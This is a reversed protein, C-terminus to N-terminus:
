RRRHQGCSEHRGHSGTRTRDQVKDQGLGGGPDEGRAQLQGHEKKGPQPDARRDGMVANQLEPM